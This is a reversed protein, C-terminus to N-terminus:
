ELPARMDFRMTVVCQSLLIAIGAPSLLNAENHHSLENDFSKKTEKKAAEIHHQLRTIRIYSVAHSLEFNTKLNNLSHFKLSLFHVNALTFPDMAREGSYNM